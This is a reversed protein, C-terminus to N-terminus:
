NKGGNLLLTVASRIDITGFLTTSVETAAESDAEESELMNYTDDTCTPCDVEDNECETLEAPDNIDEETENLRIINEDEFIQLFPLKFKKGDDVVAKTGREMAKKMSDIKIDSSSLDHVEKTDNKWTEHPLPVEERLISRGRSHAYATMDDALALESRLNRKECGYALTIADLNTRRGAFIGIRIWAFLQENADSGLLYTTVKASFPSLSHTWRLYM